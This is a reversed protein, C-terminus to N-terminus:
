TDGGGDVRRKPRVIRREVWHCVGAVHNATPRVSVHACSHRVIGGGLLLLGSLAELGAVLFIPIAEVFVAIIGVACAVMGFGGTFTGYKLTTHPSGIKYSSVLTSSLGLAV